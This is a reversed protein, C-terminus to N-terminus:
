PVTAASVPRTTAAAAAILRAARPMEIWDSHGDAYLVNAGDGGHNTLPEYLVVADQPVLGPVWDAHGCYVYSLHGPVALAAAVANADYGSGDAPPEPLVPLDDNSAPCVLTGPETNGQTLLEALSAPYRGNHAEQYRLIALAIEHEHGACLGVLVAPSHMHRVYLDARHAAMPVAVAVVVVV